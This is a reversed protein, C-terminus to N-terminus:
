NEEPRNTQRNKRPGLPMEQPTDPLHGRIMKKKRKKPSIGGPSSATDNNKQKKKQSKGSPSSAIDDNKQKKKGSKGSPNPSKGRRPSSAM